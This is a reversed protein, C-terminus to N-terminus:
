AHRLASSIAERMAAISVPKSALVDIEPFKEKELFQGFGTLLIVPTRPRVQKMSAAMQEGSMGPMARDTVVLDFPTAMFQRLGEVAHEALVVRHGDHELTAAITRRVPEEDDVVLVHLGRPVEPTAKAESAAARHPPFTLQFTTGQGVESRLDLHGSHRQVIGFVMSLGLGTGREGKTSFFPELCRRRVEESMGSGTDAVELVANEGRRLTRLTLRGGQPMADVANFILNTLVERLAAEEGSITPVPQLETRLEITAGNAQAQDRWRPRTLTAAQEVLKALDVPAPQMEEAHSRYFERLRAVISAADGAATQINQLYHRAKKPDSLATSSSLLLDSFGLIPVLANNFDHAVGSAMQGLARLREQQIIQHQAARLKELAEALEANRARLDENTVDLAAEARERGVRHGESVEALKEVPSSLRVVLIHVAVYAVLLLLAGGGVIQWRLVQQRALSESLPYLGVQWAPSFKSNPNVLHCFLLYPVGGIAAPASGERGGAAAVADAAAKTAEAMTSADLGPLYFRDATWIGQLGNFSSAGLVASPTFGLVMAGLAEGTESDLMPTVVVELLSSDAAALYGAEQQEPIEPLALRAEWASVQEHPRPIVAGKKDLFRFLRAVGAASSGSGGIVGRLELEIRANDYLDQVSDEELAAIIRPKHALKRGLDALAELHTKREGLQMAFTRRFQETIRQQEESEARRQALWLAVGTAAAVVLMVTVLLRVRFRGPKTPAASM